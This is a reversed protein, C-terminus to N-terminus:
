RSIQRMTVIPMPPTSESIPTSDSEKPDVTVDTTVNTSETDEIESTDTSDEADPAEESPLDSVDLVPTVEQTQDGYANLGTTPLMLGCALIVALGCRLLAPLKANAKKKM